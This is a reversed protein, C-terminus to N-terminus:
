LTLGFLRRILKEARDRWGLLDFGLGCGGDCCDCFSKLPDLRSEVEDFREYLILGLVPVPPAPEFRSTVARELFSSAVNVVPFPVV